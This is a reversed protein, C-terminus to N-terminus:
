AASQEPRRQLLLGLVLTVVCAAAIVGFVLTYAIESPYVGPGKGPDSITSTALTFAICQAGVAMGMSRVVQALGTTESTREPPAAEVILSATATYTAVMAPLSIIVCGAVFWISGHYFILAGWPLLTIVLGYLLARRGADRRREAVHGAWPGTFVGLVNAPVKVLGAFTATAGLGVLTWTPQQLLPMIVMPAMLPGFGQFFYLLNALAIQRRSLLRVDILPQSHRLEHFVWVVMLMLGTALTLWTASAAWGWDKVKTLALLVLAIAPVFLVGGWVDLREVRGSRAASARPVLILVLVFSLVAFIASCVFIGQWSGRDVIVGGVVLGLGSGLGYTGALIGIGMAVRHAPWQERVLGICLPLIVMSAGQLARGLIVGALGDALASILSGAGAVVLMILLMRRRGFIDGLRACVAAAGSATLLFATIVWGVMAPDPFLRYLTALASYIMNSEFSCTMEALVLAVMMPWLRRENAM